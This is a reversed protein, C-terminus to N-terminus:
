GTIVINNYVHMAGANAAHVPMCDAPRQAGANSGFWIVRDVNSSIESNNTVLRDNADVRPLKELIAVLVTTINGLLEEQTSQQSVGALLSTPM